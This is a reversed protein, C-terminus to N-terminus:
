LKSARYYSDTIQRFFPSSGLRTLMNVKRAKRSARVAIAIGIVLYLAGIVFLAHACSLHSWWNSM